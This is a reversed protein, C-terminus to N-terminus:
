SALPTTNQNASGFVQNTAQSAPAQEDCLKDERESSLDSGQQSMSSESGLEGEYLAAGIRAPAPLDSPEYASHGLDGPSDTHNMPLPGLPSGTSPADESVHIPSPFSSESEKNSINDDPTPSNRADNRPDQSQPKS